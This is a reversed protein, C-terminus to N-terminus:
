MLVVANEVVRNATVKKFSVYLVSFRESKRSLLKAGCTQSCVLLDVLTKTINFTQEPLFTVDEAKMMEM